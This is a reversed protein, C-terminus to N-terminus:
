IHVSFNKYNELLINAAANDSYQFSAQVLKCITMGNKQYETTIPSWPELKRDIFNILTYLHLLKEQSKAIIAAALFAKFSSCLPFSEKDRYGFTLDGKVDYAYIRIRGKWDSEIGKM